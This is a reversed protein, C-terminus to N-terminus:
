FVEVLRAGADLQGVIDPWAREMSALLAATRCNGCRLWVVAAPEPRLVTMRSFDEDKTVIVAGTRAAHQWTWDHPAQAMQLALFHEATCGQAVCWRVLAAPLQNDILFRKM